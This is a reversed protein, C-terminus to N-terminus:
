CCNVARHELDKLAQQLYADASPFHDALLRLLGEIRNAKVTRKKRYFEANIGILRLREPTWIVSGKFRARWIGGGSMGFPEPLGTFMRAFADEVTEPYEMVVQIPRQQTSAWDFDTPINSYYSFSEYCHVIGQEVKHMDEPMGFIVALDEALGNPFLDFDDLALFKKNGLNNACDESLHLFGVDTQGCKNGGKFYKGSPANRINSPKEASVIQLAEPKHRNIVHAATVVIPAEALMLLMGTGHDFPEKEDHAAIVVSRDFIYRNILSSSETLIALKQEKNM